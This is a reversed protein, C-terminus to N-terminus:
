CFLRRLVVRALDIVTQKRKGLQLDMVQHLCGCDIQFKLMRLNEDNCQATEALMREMKMLQRYVLAIGTLLRYDGRDSPKGSDRAQLYRADVAKRLVELSQCRRSHDAPVHYVEMEDEDYLSLCYYEWDVDM